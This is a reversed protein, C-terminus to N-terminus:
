ATAFRASHKEVSVFVGFLLASYLLDGILMTGYFPLGAVYCAVLGALTKPYIVSITWMAFNTVIYFLTASVTAAAAVAVPSSRRDRIFVGIGAVVAFTGYVVPMLSHFGIVADSILLAALPITFSWWRRDFCAGSFLAVAGVPTLNWPHPLLRMMVAFVVLSLALLLRNAVQNKM